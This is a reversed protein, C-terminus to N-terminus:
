SHTAPLLCVADNTNYFLLVLMGALLAAEGRGDGGVMSPLGGAMVGCQVM